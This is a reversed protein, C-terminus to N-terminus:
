SYFVPLSGDPTQACTGRAQHGKATVPSLSLPCTCPSGEQPQLAASIWPQLNYVM